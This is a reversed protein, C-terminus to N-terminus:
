QALLPRSPGTSSVTLEAESPWSSLGSPTLGDFLRGPRTAFLSECAPEHRPNLPELARQLFPSKDCRKALEVHRSAVTEGPMPARLKLRFDGQNTQRPNLDGQPKVCARLKSSGVRAAAPKLVSDGSHSRASNDPRAATSAPTAQLPLRARSPAGVKPMVRSQRSTPKPSKPWAAKMATPRAPARRKVPSM